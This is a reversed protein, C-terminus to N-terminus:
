SGATIRKAPYVTGVVPDSTSRRIGQAALADLDEIAHVVMGEFPSEFALMDPLDPARKLDLSTVQMTPNGSREFASVICANTTFPLSRHDIFQRKISPADAASNFNQLRDHLGLSEFSNLASAM